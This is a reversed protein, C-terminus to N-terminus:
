SFEVISNRWMDVKLRVDVGSTNAERWERYVLDTPRNQIWLQQHLTLVCSIQKGVKSFSYGQEWAGREPVYIPSSLRADKRVHDDCSQFLALCFPLMEYYATSGVIHEISPTYSM